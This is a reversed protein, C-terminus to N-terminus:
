GDFNHRPVVSDDDISRMRGGFLHMGMIAFIFVFLFLLFLFTVVSDLTRLMIGLQKQITPLYRGLKFLRLLRFARLVAFHSSVLFVEVVGMMVVAFDMTDYGNLFFELTGISFIRLLVELLFVFALAANVAEIVDGLTDPQGEHEMSMTITNLAICGIVVRSFWESGVLRQARLQWSSKVPILFEDEIVGEHPEDLSSETPDECNMMVRFEDFDIMGNGDLDIADSLESVEESSLKSDVVTLAAKLEDSSVIGNGDSDFLDFVERIMSLDKRDETSM